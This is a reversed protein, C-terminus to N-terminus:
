GSIESVEENTQNNLLTNTKSKQEIFSASNDKIYKSYMTIFDERLLDISKSKSASRVLSYNIRKSFYKLDSDNALGLGLGFIRNFNDDFFNESIFSKEGIM